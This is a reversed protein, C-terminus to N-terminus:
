LIIKGAVLKSIKEKSKWQKIKKEMDMAESRSGCEKTYVLKWPRYRSTFGKEITNHFDLRRTPDSSQGVYYKGSSPSHLIYVFYPMVFIGSRHDPMPEAPLEGRRISSADREAFRFPIVAPHGFMSYAPKL